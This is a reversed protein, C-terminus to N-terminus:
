FVGQHTRIGPQHLNSAIYQVGKRQRQITVRWDFSYSQTSRAGFCFAVAERNYDLIRSFNISGKSSRYSRPLISVYALVIVQFYLTKNWEHLKIQISNHNYFKSVGWIIIIPFHYQCFRWNLSFISNEFTCFCWKSFQIYVHQTTCSSGLIYALCKWPRWVYWFTAVYMQAFIYTTELKHLSEVFFEIYVASYTGFRTFQTTWEM